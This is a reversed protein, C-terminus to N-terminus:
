NIVAGSVKVIPGWRIIESRIFTAFEAPSGGLTEMGLSELRERIEPMTLIANMEMNLREVIAKPTGAPAALGFWASVNFGPVGQSAVTPIEKWTNVQRDTSVGLAKLKGSRVLGMAVPVSAFAMTVQQALVANVSDPTSKYPIHRLKVGASSALVEGAMQQSTGTGGSSFTLEGPKARALALLEQVNSVPLQPPVVLVDANRALLGIAEFDKVPEFPMRAYLSPNIGHTSITAILLTYGDAPSKAVVDAAINGGAGPRNDIIVPQGMRKSMADGLVRGLIDAAAGPGITIVLRIPKVPYTQAHTAFAMAALTLSCLMSYLSHKM